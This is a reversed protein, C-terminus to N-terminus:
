KCANHVLASIVMNALVGDSLSEIESGEEIRVEIRVHDFLTKEEQVELGKFGFERFFKDLKEATGEDYIGPLEFVATNSM